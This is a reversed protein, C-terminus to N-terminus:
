VVLVLFLTNWCSFSVFSSWLVVPDRWGCPKALVYANPLIFFCLNIIQSITEALLVVTTRYRRSSWHRRLRCLLM